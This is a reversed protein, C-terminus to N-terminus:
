SSSVVKKTEGVLVCANGPQFAFFHIEKCNNIYAQGGENGVGM